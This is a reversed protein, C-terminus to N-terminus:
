RPALADSGVTSLSPSASVAPSKYKLVVLLSSFTQFPVLQIAIVIGVIVATLECVFEAVSKISTGAPVM